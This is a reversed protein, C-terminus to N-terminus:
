KKIVRGERVCIDSGEALFVSSPIEKNLFEFDKGYMLGFDLNIEYDKVKYIDWRPHEVGYESTKQNGIQTYGWYHETIFEEESGQILPLAPKAANVSFNFWKEKKWAYNVKITQDNEEWQHKMPLTSYHEKYLTNAVLSIMIKPVVESIFVAGRQWENGEKYRVYFRLNVEEFSSHFPIKIGKLKTNLFMFGILSVYCKGEYLDLETHPPIYPRLVDPSIVYNAMALKRWEATLFISKM